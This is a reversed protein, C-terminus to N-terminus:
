PNTLFRTIEDLQYRLTLVNPILTAFSGDESINILTPVGDIGFKELVADFYETNRWYDTDFMLLEVDGIQELIKALYVHFVLCFECTDRGVYLVGTFEGNILSQADYLKPLFDSEIGSPLGFLGSFRILEYLEYALEAVVPMSIISEQDHIRQAFIDHEFEINVVTLFQPRDAPYLGVYWSGVIDLGTTTYDAFTGKVHGYFDNFFLRDRVLYFVDWYEDLVGFRSDIIELARDAATSSFIQVPEADNHYHFFRGGNSLAAYLMAMEKVTLDLFGRVPALTELSNPLMSAYSSIGEFSSLELRDLFDFIFDLESNESKLFFASTNGDNIAQKFTTYGEFYDIGQFALNIAITPVFALGDDTVFAENNFEEHIDIGFHDIFLAASIPLFAYSAMALRNVDGYSAVISNTDIDLILMTMELPHDYVEKFRAAIHQLYENDFTQETDDDRIDNTFGSFTDEAILVAGTEDTEINANSETASVASAHANFDYHDSTDLSCANITTSFVMFLVVMSFAVYKNKKM